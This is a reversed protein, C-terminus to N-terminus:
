DSGLFYEMLVVDVHGDGCCIHDSWAGARRYGLKEYVTIAAPNDARVTLILKRLNLERGAFDHLKRVAATGVGGGRSQATLCIGLTGIRNMRDINAIQIYGACIGDAYVSLIRTDESGVKRALWEQVEPLTRTVVPGMVLEQLAGDNLMASFVPLDEEVPCRLEVAV